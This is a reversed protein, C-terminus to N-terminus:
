VRLFQFAFQRPAGREDPVFWDTEYLLFNANGFLRQKTWSDDCFLLQDGICLHIYYLMLWWNLQCLMWAFVKDNLKAGDNLTALSHQDMDMHGIIDFSQAM